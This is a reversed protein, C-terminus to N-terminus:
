LDGFKTHLDNFRELGEHYKKGGESGTRENPPMFSVERKVAIRYNVFNRLAQNNKRARVIARLLQVLVMLYRFERTCPSNEAYSVNLVRSYKVLHSFWEAFVHEVPLLAIMVVFRGLEIPTMRVDRRKAVDLDFAIRCKKRLNRIFTLNVSKQLYKSAFSEATTDGLSIAFQACEEDCAELSLALLQGSGLRAGNEHLYKVLEIRHNKRRCADVYLQDTNDPWPIEATRLIHVYEVGKFTADYYVTTLDSPRLESRRFVAGEQPPFRARRLMHELMETRERNVACKVMAETPGYDCNDLIYELHALTGHRTVAYAFVDPDFNRGLRSVVTKFTDFMDDDMLVCYVDHM